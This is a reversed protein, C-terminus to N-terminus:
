RPTPKGGASLIEVLLQPVGAVHITALRLPACANRSFREDWGWRRHARAARPPPALPALPSPLVTITVAQRQWHMMWTRRRRRGAGDTWTMAAPRTPLHTTVEMPVLRRRRASVRRAREGSVGRGLCATRMACRRCDTARASCIRRQTDATEQRTATPWLVAGAPCQVQGDARLTFTNAGLRGAARGWQRAWQWPGYTEAPQDLPVAVPPPAATPAPAWEISRVPAAVLQRGLALRLNWVWHWVVQWLEQGAPSYSCWRDPDGARDEDAL